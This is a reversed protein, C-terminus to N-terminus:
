VDFCVLLVLSAVSRKLSSSAAEDAYSKREAADKTGLGTCCALMEFLRSASFIGHRPPGSHNLRAPPHLHLM